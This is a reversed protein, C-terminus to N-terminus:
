LYAVGVVSIAKERGSILGTSQYVGAGAEM